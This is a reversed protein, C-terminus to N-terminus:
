EKRSNEKLNRHFKNFIKKLQRTYIRELIKQMEM